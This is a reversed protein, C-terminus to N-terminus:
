QAVHQQLYEKWLNCLIPLPLYSKPVITNPLIKDLAFVLMTPGKELERQIFPVADQQMDVIAKFYENDLNNTSMTNTARNWSDYNSYFELEKTAERTDMMQTKGTDPTQSFAMMAVVVGKNSATM